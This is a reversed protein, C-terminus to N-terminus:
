TGTWGSVTTVVSGLASSSVAPARCVFLLMVDGTGVTVGVSAGPKGSPGVSLLSGVSTSMRVVPRSGSAISLGLSPAGM